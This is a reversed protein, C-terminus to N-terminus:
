DYVSIGGCVSFLIDRVQCVSLEILCCYVLDETHLSFRPFLVQVSNVERMYQDNKEDGAVDKLAVKM